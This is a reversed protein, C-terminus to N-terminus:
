FVEILYMSSTEPSNVVAGGFSINDTGNFRQADFPTGPVSGLIKTSRICVLQNTQVGMAKLFSAKVVIASVDQYFPSNADASDFYVRSADDAYNYPGYATAASVIFRALYSRRSNLDTGERYSAGITRTYIHGINNQDPNITGDCKIDNTEIQVTHVWQTAHVYPAQITGTYIANGTVGLYGTAGNRSQIYLPGRVYTGQDNVTIGTTADGNEDFFDARAITNDFQFQNVQNAPIGQAYDTYAKDNQNSWGIIKINNETKVVDCTEGVMRINPSVMRIEESGLVIDVDGASFVNYTNDDEDKYQVVLPLAHGELHGSTAIPLTFHPAADKVDLLGGQAVININGNTALRIIDTGFLRVDDNVVAVYANESNSSIALFDSGNAPPKFNLARVDHFRVEDNGSYLATWLQNTTAVEPSYYSSHGPHNLGLYPTTRVSGLNDNTAPPFVFQAPGFSISSIPANEVALMAVITVASVDAKIILVDDPDSVTVAMFPIDAGNDNVCLVVTKAEYENTTVDSGGVQFHGTVVNGDNEDYLPQGEIPSIFACRYGGGSTFDSLTTANEISGTFQETFLAIATVVASSEDAIAAALANRGVNTMTMQWTM